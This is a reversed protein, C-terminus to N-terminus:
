SGVYRPANDRIPDVPQNFLLAHKNAQLKKLANRCAKLDPLNMGATQARPVAAPKVDPKSAPKSSPPKTSPKAKSKSSSAPLPAPPAFAVVKKNVPSPAPSETTLSPIRPSGPLKVKAASVNLQISSHRSPPGGSKITRPPKAPVKVSPTPPAAETIPTSPIHIKVSPPSEEVPRILLDALKLLCWRVEFDM